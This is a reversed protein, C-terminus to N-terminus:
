TTEQRDKLFWEKMEVCQGKFLVADSAYFEFTYDSKVVDMGVLANVFSECEEYSNYIRDSISPTAGGISFVLLIEIM